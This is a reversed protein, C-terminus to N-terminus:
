LSSARHPTGWMEVRQAEKESNLKSCEPDRADLDVPKSVRGRSSVFMTRKRAIGSPSTLPCLQWVGARPKNIFFRKIWVIRAKLNLMDNPFSHTLTIPSRREASAFREFAAHSNQRRVCKEREGSTGSALFM